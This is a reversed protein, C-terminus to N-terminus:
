GSPELLCDTDKVQGGAKGSEHDRRGGEFGALANPQTRIVNGGRQSQSKLRGKNNKLISPIAKKPGGSLGCYDGWRLALHHAVNM